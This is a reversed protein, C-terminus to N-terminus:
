RFIPEGALLRQRLTNEDVEDDDLIEPTLDGTQRPEGRDRLVFEARNRDFIAIVPAHTRGLLASQDSEIQAGAVDFIGETRPGFLWEGVDVKGRVVLVADGLILRAARLEGRVAVISHVDSSLDLTGSVSLGGGFVVFEPGGREEARAEADFADVAVHEDHLEVEDTYGVFWGEGVMDEAQAATVM